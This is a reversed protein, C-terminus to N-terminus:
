ACGSESFPGCDNAGVIGYELQEAVRFTRGLDRTYFYAALGFESDNALAIAEAETEFKAIPSLPGFTEEKACLMESSLGDIVTPQYFRPAFGAGMSALEGGSRITAGRDQADTLHERMKKVAADNILPGVQVGPELGNGIKLKSAGAALKSAFEEYVAAQVYFRNACICTQGANRYKAALAGAVAADIDADDFVL